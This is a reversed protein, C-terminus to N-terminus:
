NAAINISAETIAGSESHYKELLALYRGDDILTQLAGRVHESLDSGKAIPFGYPAQRKYVDLHTYSVPSASPM